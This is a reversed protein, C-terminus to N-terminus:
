SQASRVEERIEMWLKGLWNEGQWQGNVLAKGWFQGSGRSHSTCDEVIEEDKTARLIRRAEPNQEVKLRLVLRMNDLDQDSQQVIVMEAKHRKAIMKAIMPSSATRIEERIGDDEFRLAQFLAEATKYRKSQYVVAHPSMNGLEGYAAQAKAIAIM